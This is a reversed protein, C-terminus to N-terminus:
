GQRQRRSRRYLWGAARPSVAALYLFWRTPDRLPPVRPLAARAIQAAKVSDGRVACQAAEFAASRLFWRDLAAAAGHEEGHKRLAMAEERVFPLGGASGTKSTEHIEFTALAQDVRVGIVGAKAMRLWYEFDMALNFDTDLLGVQDQTARTWFTGPQLVVNGDWMADVSFEAGPSRRLRAANQIVEIDGYFVGADPRERAERVIRELAGPLLTDDANLWGILDGNAMRLGKNIADSQGDDPESVWVLDSSSELLEITSDSSCADIVIHEVRVPAQARVTAICQALREGMNLTPTIVTILPNAPLRSDM